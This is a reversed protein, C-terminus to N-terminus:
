VAIYTQNLANNTSGILASYCVTATRGLYFFLIFIFSYLWVEKVPVSLFLVM